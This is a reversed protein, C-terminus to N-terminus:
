YGTFLLEGGMEMWARAAEVGSETEIFKGTRWVEHLHVGVVNTRRHQPNKESPMNEPDICTTAHILIKNMKIVSYHKVADTFM